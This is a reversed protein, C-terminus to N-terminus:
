GSAWLDLPSYSQIRKDVIQNGRFHSDLDILSISERNRPFSMYLFVPL